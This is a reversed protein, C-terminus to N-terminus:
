FNMTCLKLGAKKLELHLTDLKKDNSGRILEEGQQFTSYFEDLFKQGGIDGELYTEGNLELKIKSIIM